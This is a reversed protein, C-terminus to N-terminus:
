SIKKTKKGDYKKEGIYKTNYFIEDQINLRGKLKEHQWTYLVTFTQTQM